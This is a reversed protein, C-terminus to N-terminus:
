SQRVSNSASREILSASLMMAQEWQWPSFVERFIETNKARDSPRTIVCRAGLQPEHAAAEQEVQPTFCYDIAKRRRGKLSSANTKNTPAHVRGGEWVGGTTDSVGFIVAVSGAGGLISSVSIGGGDLGNILSTSAPM